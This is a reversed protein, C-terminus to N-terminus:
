SGAVEDKKIREKVKELVEPKYEYPGRAGLAPGKEILRMQRAHDLEAWVQRSATLARYRVWDSVSEEGGSLLARARIGALFQENKHMGRRWERQRELFDKLGQEKYFAEYQRAFDDYAIQNIQYLSYLQDWKIQTEGGLVISMAPYIGELHPEFAELLPDMRTGEIVPIWGVIRNLEENGPQSAMFLLFDLAIEPHPSTRVIGFPFGGGVREYLPGEIISGYYPDDKSPLPFDMVGVEFQGEAQQQLSRADWTGTTIFVAREQAFLFVAEDRTLGTYGTQFHRSLERLMKFRAAYAPFSFDIRGTKFAVFTEDDGAFGDRNFDVKRIAPYTIPDIMMASWMGFHYGSCAIPTVPQGSRDTHKSIEECAALFARYERPAEDLGTCKKLLDRNYFIRVGFMSLPISMYEQMEDVYANRMGDKFTKRLAVGDLDTGRNHPNPQNVYRTLPLFYRNYYGIWIPAPLMQGVEMIDPATGGMLQTTAWQGYVGEPIADQVVYVKPNVQERYRRAMEDIAERVSAELQWHGFRLLIADPPAQVKRYTIIAFISWLFTAGVVMLPFYTRIFSFVRMM